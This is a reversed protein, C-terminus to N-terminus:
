GGVGLGYIGLLIFVFIWVVLLDNATMAPHRSNETRVDGAATIVTTFLSKSLAM